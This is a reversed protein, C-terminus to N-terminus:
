PKAKADAQAKAKDAAANFKAADDLGQSMSSTTHTLTGTGSGVVYWMTRAASTALAGGALYFTVGLILAAGGLWRFVTRIM